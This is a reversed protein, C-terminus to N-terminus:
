SLFDHSAVNSNAEVTLSVTQGRQTAVLEKPAM